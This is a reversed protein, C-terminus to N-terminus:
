RSQEVKIAGQSDPLALSVQSGPLELTAPAVAEQRPMQIAQMVHATPLGAEAPGVIPHEASCPEELGPHQTALHRQMVGQLHFSASCHPCPLLQSGAHEEKFHRRHAAASPFTKDCSGCQLSSFKSSRHNQKAFVDPHHTRNHYWLGSLQQYAKDCVQCRFPKGGVHTVLHRELLSPASFAKGCTPCPHPPEKAHAAYVHRQREQLTPFSMQCQKCDYPDDLNHSTRLHISLGNAQRFGKGCERCVYPKDGTHTRVHRSLEISQAFVAACYQCAYMKGQAHKRKTHYALASAQSFAMRCHQCAFPQDGTHLRRHNKLTSNAAFKAGCEECTFPKKDFHETLKHYQMGSTHAFERGCIDCPVPLRRKKPKRRGAATSAPQHRAEWQHRELAAKSSRTEGCEACQALTRNAVRCRKEHVKLRCSYRFSKRCAQCALSRRPAAGVPAERSRGAKRGAKGVTEVQCLSNVKWKWIGAQAGEGETLLGALQLEQMVTRLGPFSEQIGCLLQFIQVAPLPTDLASSLAAEWSSGPTEEPLHTSLLEQVAAALDAEGPPLRELDAGQQLAESILTRRRLLIETAIGESSGVAQFLLAAGPEKQIEALVHRLPPEATQGALLVQWLAATPLAQEELAASALAGFALRPQVAGAVIREMAQRTGPALHQASLLMQQWLQADSVHKALHDQHRRLLSEGCAELDWRATGNSGAAAAVSNDLLLGLSPFPVKLAGLLQLVSDTSLAKEELAKKLVNEMAERPSDSECCELIAQKEAGSLFGAQATDLLERLPGLHTVAQALEERSEWLWATAAIVEGSSGTGRVLGKGEPLTPSEGEERVSRQRGPCPCPLAGPGETPRDPLRTEEALDQQTASTSCTSQEREASPEASDALAPSDEEARFKADHSAESIVASRHSPADVTQVLSDRLVQRQGSCGLLDRLLTKCSVAVDFMQLSDAASIITTFNHKGAPLKGTYIMELLLAFDEPTVVSADISLTDTGDLVSRFLLSAAALVLKHARFHTTGVVVSCDCFQQERCLTHLQQLLHLSYSPLDM